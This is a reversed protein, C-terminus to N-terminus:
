VERCEPACVRVAVAGSAELHRDAHALADSYRENVVIVVRGLAAVIVCQVTDDGVLQQVIRGPWVAGPTGLM